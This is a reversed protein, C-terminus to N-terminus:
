ESNSDAPESPNTSPDRREERWLFIVLGVVGIVFLIGMPGRIPRTFFMISWLSLLINALSAAVGWGKASRKEKWITWSAVGFIGALMLLVAPVRLNGLDLLSYHQHIRLLISLLASRFCALSSIAFVACLAWSILRRFNQM